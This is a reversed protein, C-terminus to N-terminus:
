QAIAGNESCVLIAALFRLPRLFCGVGFRRTAMASVGKKKRKKRTKAAM